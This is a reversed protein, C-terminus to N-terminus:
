QNFLLNKINDEFSLKPNIASLYYPFASMLALYNCKIENPYIDRLM